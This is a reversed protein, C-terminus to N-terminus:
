LDEPDLDEDAATADVDNDAEDQADLTAIDLITQDLLRAYVPLDRSPLGAAIKAALETRLAVLVPRREGSAAAEVIGSPSTPTSSQGADSSAALVRVWTKLTNRSIDLDRAVHSIPEGATVRAAAATRFEPPYPRRPSATVAHLHRPKSSM